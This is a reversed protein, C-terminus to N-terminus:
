VCACVCVSVCMCVSVTKRQFIHVWCFALSQGHVGLLLPCLFLSSTKLILGGEGLQCGEWISGEWNVGRGFPVRGISMGGLHFGGLQHGEWIAVRGISVEGFIVGEM